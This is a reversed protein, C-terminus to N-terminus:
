AAKEATPDHQVLQLEAEAQNPGFTLRKGGGLEPKGLEYTWYKLDRRGIRKVILGLHQLWSWSASSSSPLSYKGVENTQTCRSVTSDSRSPQLAFKHTEFKQV